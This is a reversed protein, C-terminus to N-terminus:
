IGDTQDGEGSFLNVKIGMQKLEQYLRALPLGVVNQYDGDIKKIFVAAKGQIGYSGAKDMPEGSDVYAAIEESSIPYMTVDTRVYFSVVASTDAAGHYLTVGTYVQHTRNQLRGLVAAADAPDKPKGLIEGELFVLTDAGIILCEEQAHAARVQEYVEEAKQRALGIVVQDPTGEIPIEEGVAPIVEFTLGLRELLERRRPSASALIIKM